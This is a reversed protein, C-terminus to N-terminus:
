IARRGTDYIDRSRNAERVPVLEQPCRKPHENTHGLRGGRGSLLLCTSPVQIRLPLITETRWPSM